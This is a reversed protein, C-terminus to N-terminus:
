TPPPGNTYRLMPYFSRAFNNSTVCSLDGEPVALLCAVALLTLFLVHLPFAARLVRFIFPRQRRPSCQQQGSTTLHPGAAQLDPMEQQSAGDGGSDCTLRTQLAGMHGDCQRQLLKMKSSIVRLKESVGFSGADVLLHSSMAQISALQRQRAHLEEQLATLSTRHDLLQDRTLAPDTVQMLQVANQFCAAWQLLSRLSEQVEQNQTLGTRLKRQWLDLSECALTWSHNASSLADQLEESDGRLFQAAALNVSIMQCKHSHFSRQVEKLRQINTEIDRINSCPAIRQLQELEPLIQALWSTVESLETNLKQWQLDLEEARSRSQLLEWRQIVGSDLHKYGSGGTLGSEDLDQHDNLTLQIQQVKNISCTCDSMLGVYGQQHSGPGGGTNKDHQHRRERPGPCTWFEETASRGSLDGFDAADDDDRSSTRGVDVTHDWELPLSDVSVPTERGCREAPPALLHCAVRHASTNGAVPSSESSLDHSEDTEILTYQPKQKAALRHHFRAVRGFVEQCYSHLEELEDEILVADGACSKQILVEGFVILADIQDTHLTIDQQFGYLQEMKKQVHSESFHEVNTLQLDLETLWVLVGERTAEFEERQLTFHKLRRLIAAARRQLEDWRRNGREVLDRLEGATDTRNERALRRYQKNILELQTSREHVQRQFAEFRKLEERAQLYPVDSTDPTAATREAAQLWDHLGYSLDLFKSWLRGTEEIRIRRELSSACINRWRRDLSVSTQRVYDNEPDSTSADRDHLLVDCLTLVLSVSDAHREIKRQVEQHETLRTKIENQHCVSYILPAALDSEVQGMWTRLQNMSHDLQQVTALTEKLKKVRTEIHDFLHRWRENVDSLKHNLEAGKTKNSATILQDGLQKLHTKNESFLNMEEMCDKKLKEVMEEINLDSTPTVKNEMQTLWDCLEKNKQDFMMWANLRDAIEQERLSVQLCLEEWEQQMEEVQQQLLMEDDALLFQSVDSKMASLEALREAWSELLDRDEEEILDFTMLQEPDEPVLKEPRSGVLDLKQKELLLGNECRDWNQIITRTLDLRHGLLRNLTEWDEHLTGLQEQIQNQTDQDGSCFLQRGLELTNALGSQNQRFLQQSLKLEELSLRLQQLTCRPPGAPPLLARVDNLFRQLRRLGRVYRHWCKVLGEVLSRRQEVRQLVTQWRERLQALTLVFDTSCAEEARAAAASWHLNLLQLRRTTADSLLVDHSLENVVDLDASRGSFQLLSWQNQPQTQDDTHGQDQTLGRDLTPGQDRSNLRQLWLALTEELSDLLSHLRSLSQREEQLREQRRTLRESLQVLGRSLVRCESQLLSAGSPDLHAVLRRSSELVEQLDSELSCGQVLFGLIPFSSAPVQIKDIIDDIRDEGITDDESAGGKLATVDSQLTLLRQSLSTARADFNIWSELVVGSRGVRRSVSELVQTWSDRAQNLREALAQAAAPSIVDRLAMMMETLNNWEMGSRETEELLDQLRAHLRRQALLCLQPGCQLELTQRTRLEKRRLERLGTGMSVWLKLADTLRTRLAQVHHQLSTLSEETVSIVDSAEVEDRFTQLVSLNQQIRREATECAELSRQADTLTKPALVMWVNQDSIWRNMEKLRHNLQNRTRLNQDLQHIQSQVEQQLQLGLHGVRGQDEAFQNLQCRQGHDDETSYVQTPGSVFDLTLWHAQLESGISKYSMLLAQQEAVGSTRVRSRLEELSREFGSFCCLLQQLAVQLSSSETWRQHLTQLLIPVETVLGSWDQEVRRLQVTVSGLDLDPDSSEELLHLLQSGYSSVSMKLGSRVELEKTVNVMQLFGERRQDPDAEEHARRTCRDVTQRAGGMWDCLKPFDTLFKSKLRKKMASKAIEMKARAQLAKMQTDMQQCVVGVESCGAAQLWTGDELMRGFRLRNKEKNLEQLDGDETLTLSSTQVGSMVSDWWARDEDWRSWTELIEQMITEREVAQTLLDAVSGQLETMLDPSRRPCIEPARSSLVQLVQFHRSLFQFFKQHGALRQQVHGRATFSAARRLHKHGHGVLVELRCILRELRDMSESGSSATSTSISELSSSPESTGPTLSRSDIMKLDRRVNNQLNQKPRTKLYSSMLQLHSMVRYKQQDQNQNPNSQSKNLNRNQNQNNQSKNLNQSHIQNQNPTQESRELDVGLFTEWLWWWVGGGAVESRQQPDNQRERQQSSDRSWSLRQEPSSREVSLLTAGSSRLVDDKVHAIRIQGSEMEETEPSSSPMQVQVPTLPQQIFLAPVKKELDLLLSQLQDVVVFVMLTEESKPPLGLGPKCRQIEAITRRMSQIQQEAVQLSQQRPSPMSEPSSLLSRIAEVDKEMKKVEQEIAEVEAAAHQLQSLPGSFREQVEAVRRDADDLQQQLGAVDCVQSMETLVSGFDQLTSRIQVSDDLVMKLASVHDNLCKATKYTCPAELWSHAEAMWSGASNIMEKHQQLWKQVKSLLTTKQEAQQSLQSHHQQEEVLRETLHLAVKPDDLEQLEVELRALRSHWRDLEDWVLKQTVKAEAMSSSRDELRKQVSDLGAQIESLRAGLKNLPGSREVAQSVQVELQQLTGEAEKQIGEVELPVVTESYKTKLRDAIRQMLSKYSCLKSHADQLEAEEDKRAQLQSAVASAHIQLEQLEQLVKKRDQLELGTMLLGDRCSLRLRSYHDQMAQLQQCLPHSPAEEQSAPVGLLRAVRLELASLSRHECDLRDQYQDWTQQQAMLEGTSMSRVRSGDPLEAEVVHLASTAKEVSSSISRWETVRGSCRTILRQVLCQLRLVRSRVSFRLTQGGCCNLEPCIEELGELQGWHGKVEEHLLRLNEQQEMCDGIGCIKHSIIQSLKKECLQLGSLLNDKGEGYQRQHEACRRLDQLQVLGRANLVSTKVLIQSLVRELLREVLQPNLCPHQPVHGRLKELHTQLGQDLSALVLETEQLRENARQTPGQPPLLSAEADLLFRLADKVALTFTQVRARAECLNEMLSDCTRLVEEKGELLDQSGSGMKAIKAVKVRTEITKKLCLVRLYEQLIVEDRPDLQPPNQLIQRSAQIFGTTARMERDLSELFPGETVSLNNDLTMEWTALTKRTQQLQQLESSLQSPYMDQSMTQLKSETEDCIFKVMPIQVLLKLMEDVELRVETTQPIQLQITGMLDEIAKRMALYKEHDQVKLQIASLKSQVENIASYLEKSKEQSIWPVLLDVKSKHDPILKRCPQLAQMSESTIPFRLKSLEVLMQCLSKQLMVVDRQSADVHLFLQDLHKQNTTQHTSVAQIKAKLDSIKDFLKCTEHVSLRAGIRDSKILLDECALSQKKAEALTEQIQRSRRDTEAPGRPDDETIRLSEKLLQAEVWTDLDAIQQSLKERTQLESEVERVAATLKESILKSLERLSILSSEVVPVEQDQDLKPLLDRIEKVLADLQGQKFAVDSQLKKLDRLQQHVKEPLLPVQRRRGEIEKETEKAWVLSDKMARTIKEIIPNDSTQELSSILTGTCGLQDKIKQLGEQIEKTNNPNLGQQVEEAQEKLQIYSKQAAKVEAEAEMLEQARHCYSVPCGLDKLHKHLSELHGQLMSIELLLNGTQSSRVSAHRLTREVNRELEAQDQRLNQVEMDTVVQQDYSLHPILKGRTEQQAQVVVKIQDLTRMLSGFSKADNTNSESSSQKLAELESTVEKLQASGEATQRCFEEVLEKLSKRTEVLTEADGALSNWREVVDITVKSGKEEALESVQGQAADLIEQAETLQQSVLDPALKPIQSKCCLLKSQLFRLRVDLDGSSGMLVESSDELQEEQVRSGPFNQIETMITKIHWQEPAAMLVTRSASTRSESGESTHTSKSLELCLAPDTEGAESPLEASESDASAPELVGSDIGAQLDTPLLQQATMLGLSAPKPRGSVEGEVRRESVLRLEAEVPADVEGMEEASIDVQLVSMDPRVVINELMVSGDAPSCTAPQDLVNEVPSDPPGGPTNQDYLRIEIFTTSSPDAFELPGSEAPGVPSPQESQSPEVQPQPKADTATKQTIDLSSNKQLLVSFDAEEKPSQIEAAVRVAGLGGALHPVERKHLEDSVNKDQLEGQQIELDTGRRTATEGETRTNTQSDESEKEPSATKEGPVEDRPDSLKPERVARNHQQQLSQTATLVEPPLQDSESLIQLELQHVKVKLAELTTQLTSWQSESLQPESPSLEQELSRLEKQLIAARDKLSENKEALCRDLEALQTQCRSLRDKVEQESTDCLEHLHRVQLTLADRGGPTCLLVLKDAASDLEKLEKQERDVTQLLARLTNVSEQLKARQNEPVKLDKVHERLWAQASEHLELLQTFHRETVIGQELEALSETLDKLLVPISDQMTRCSSGCWDPDQTCSFVEASQKSLDELVPLLGASKDLLTRAHEVAQRREGLGPWGFARPLQSTQTQLDVLKAQASSRQLRCSVLLRLVSQLRSNTDDSTQQLKRWQEETEELKQQVQLRQVEQLDQRDLLNGALRRMELVRANGSSRSNQVTQSMQLKAEIQAQSDEANSDQMDLQQQLGQIWTQTDAQHSHFVQLERHLSYQVEAQRLTDEASRQVRRWVEELDRITQQLDLQTSPDLEPNECLSQMGRKLESLRSDGDPGLGLVSQATGISLEPDARWDVNDLQQQKDEMWKHVDQRLVEHDTLQGKLHAQKEAKDRLRRTEQVTTTWRDETDKVSRRLGELKEQDLDLLSLSHICRKLDQIRSDGDSKSKLITEASVIQREVAPEQIVSDLQGQKESIWDSTDRQNQELEKLTQQVRQRRDDELDPRDSLSQGRRRLNNVQCDSDPRCSQLTQMFRHREVPSSCLRTERLQQLKEQIMAQCTQSQADFDDSLSHLETQQHARLLNRWALDTESVLKDVQPRKTDKLGASLVEAQSRLESVRAEGEPKSSSVEQTIKWKEEFTLRGGASALKDKQQQIWMQVGDSSSRLRELAAATKARDLAVEAESVAKRWQDESLQLSEQVELKLVQDLNSRECLTTAQQKLDQIRSDGEPKSRLLNEARVEEDGTVPQQMERIWSRTKEVERKFSELAEEQLNQAELQKQLRAELNRYRQILNDGDKLIVDSRLGSKRVTALLDGLSDMSKRQSQLHSLLNKAGTPELSQKERAQLLDRFHDHLKQLSDLNQQLEQLQTLRNQCHTRFTSVEQRQESMWTSLESIQQEPVQRQGRQIQVQLQDLRREPDLSKLFRTLRDLSTNVDERTEPNEFCENVSMQLNQYWDDFSQREDSLVKQLGQDQEERKLQIMDKARTVADKLRSCDLMLVELVQSSAVSSVLGLEKWVAEAQEEQEELDETLDEIQTEVSKQSVDLSSISSQIKEVATQGEQIKQALHKKLALLEEFVDSCDSFLEQVQDMRKRLQTELVQLELPAEQSQLIEQIETTKRHFHDLNQQYTQIEIKMAEVQQENTFPHSEAFLALKAAAWSDAEGALMLQKEWLEMAVRLNDMHSDTKETVDLWTDMLSDSEFQSESSDPFNKLHSHLQRCVTRLDEMRDGLGKLDQQVDQLKVISRQLNEKGMYSKQETIMQEARELSSDLQGRSTQFRKLLDLLITCQQKRDTLAGRTRQCRSSLDQPPDEGGHEESEALNQMEKDLNQLQDELEALVRLRQQVAPITLEKLRGELVAEHLAKLESLLAMRRLTWSKNESERKFSQTQSAVRHDAEDLRQLLVGVMDLCSAPRGERTLTLRAGQLLVDLQPAKEKLSDSSQRIQALKGRCEQLMAVTSSPAGHVGSVDEDITRLSMLFRDLARAAAESKCVQQRLQELSTRHTEVERVLPFCDQPDLNSSESNLRALQDLENQVNDNLEKIDKLINNSAFTFGAVDKPQRLYRDLRETFDVMHNETSDIQRLAAGLSSGRRQLSSQQQRWQDQLGLRESDLEPTASLKCFQETFDSWLSETEQRLSQLDQLRTHLGKLSVSDLQVEKLSLDNKSLQVQLLRKSSEYRELAEKQGLDGEVSPQTKEVPDCRVSTQAPAQVQLLDVVQADDALKNQDPLAPTRAETKQAEQDGSFQRQIAALRTECERLQTTALRHADEPSLMDCLDKLAQLHQGAEVLGGGATFCVQTPNELQSSILLLASDFKRKTVEFRLQNLFGLMDTQLEEWQSRVSQTFVEMKSLQTPTCFAEMGKAARLFEELLDTDLSRLTEEKLALNEASVGKVQFVNIVDLIHEQLCFKAEEFGNRALAQAKAYAETYAKPPAQALVPPRICIEHLEAQTQPLSVNLQSQVQKPPTIDLSLPQVLPEPQTQTQTPALTTHDNAKTVLRPQDPQTSSQTLPQLTTAPGSETSKLTQKPEVPFKSEM